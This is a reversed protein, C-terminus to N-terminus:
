FKELPYVTYKEVGSCERISVASYSTAMTEQLAIEEGTLKSRSKSGIKCNCSEADSPDMVTFKVNTYLATYILSLTFM